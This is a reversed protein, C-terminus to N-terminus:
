SVEVRYWVWWDALNEPDAGLEDGPAYRATEAPIELVRYYRALPTETSFSLFGDLEEGSLGIALRGGVPLVDNFIVREIKITEGSGIRLSGDPGAIRQTKTRLPADFPKVYSHFVFEGDGQFIGEKDYFIQIKELIVQVRRVATGSERSPFVRESPTGRRYVVEIVPLNQIQMPDVGQPLKPAYAGTLLDATLLSIPAEERGKFRFEFLSSLGPGLPKGLANRPLFYPFTADAPCGPHFESRFADPISEILLSRKADRAFPQGEVQGDVRFEVTIPGENQIEVGPLEAEYAGEGKEVLWVVIERATRTFHEVFTRAGLLQERASVSRAPSIEESPKPTGAEEGLADCLRQKNLAGRIVARSVGDNRLFDTLAEGPSAAPLTVRARVDAGLIPESRNRLEARLKLPSALGESEVNFSSRIALDYIAFIQAGIPVNILTHAGASPSTISLWTYGFAPENGNRSIPKPVGATSGPWTSFDLPPAAGGVNPLTAVIVVKEAGSELTVALTSATATPFATVGVPLMQSLRSLISARYRAASGGDPIASDYSGDHSTVTSALDPSYSGDSSFCVNTLLVGQDLIAALRPFTADTLASLRPPPSSAAEYGDSLLLVHRRRWQGQAGAYFIGGTQSLALGIASLNAPDFPPAAGLDAAALPDGPLRTLPGGALGAATFWFFGIKNAERLTIGAAGPTKREPYVEGLVRNFMHASENALVWKLQSPSGDTIVDDLMRKSRDLLVALETPVYLDVPVVSEVSYPGINSNNGLKTLRLTMRLFLGTGLEDKPAFGASPLQVGDTLFTGPTLGAANVYPAPGSAFNVSTYETLSAATASAVLPGAVNAAYAAEASAPRLLFDVTKLARLQVRIVYQGTPGLSIMLEGAALFADVIADRSPSAQLETLSLGVSGLGGSGSVPFVKKLVSSSVAGLTYTPAPWAGAPVGGSSAQIVAPGVQAGLVKRSANIQHAVIFLLGQKLPM